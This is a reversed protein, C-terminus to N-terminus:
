QGSPAALLKFVQQTFGTNKKRQTRDAYTPDAFLAQMAAMEEKKAQQLKLSGINKYTKPYLRKLDSFIEQANIQDSASLSAFDQTLIKAYRKLLYSGHGKEFKVLDLIKCSNSRANQLSTELTRKQIITAPLYQVPISKLIKFSTLSVVTLLFMSSVPHLKIKKEQLKFISYASFVSGCLGLAGQVGHAFTQFDASVFLDYLGEKVAGQFKKINFLNELVSAEKSLIEAIKEDSLFGEDSEYAMRTLAEKVLNYMQAMRLTHIPANDPAVMPAIPAAAFGSVASILMSLFLLKKM